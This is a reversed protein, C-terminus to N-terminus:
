MCECHCLFCVYVCVRICVFGWTCMFVYVCYCV